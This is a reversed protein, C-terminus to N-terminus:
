LIHRDLLLQWIKRWTRWNHGGDIIVVHEPPLISALYGQESSFRDDRGYGLYIVPHHNKKSADREQLWAWISREWSEKTALTTNGPNWTQLGGAQKIEHFLKKEGLFPGLLVVGTIEDPHEKVYSISGYAGLSDGVLWIQSYKKLLAPTIVDEKLRTLISWNAYYGVHANVAIMDISLGRERVANILGQEQFVTISDSNGPLFVVLARSGQANAADYHITEIPIKAQPYCGFSILISLHTLCVCLFFPKKM